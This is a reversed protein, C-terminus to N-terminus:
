PIDASGGLPDSTNGVLSIFGRALSGSGSRARARALPHPGQCMSFADPGRDPRPNGSRHNRRGIRPRDGRRPRSSHSPLSQVFSYARLERGRGRSSYSKVQAPRDRSHTSVALKHPDLCTPTYVTRITPDLYSPHPQSPSQATTPDGPIKNVSRDSGDSSRDFFSVPYCSLSTRGPCGPAPFVGRVGLRSALSYPRTYGPLRICRSM